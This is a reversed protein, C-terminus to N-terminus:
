IMPFFNVSYLLAFFSGFITSGLYCTDFFASVKQLAGLFNSVKQTCNM